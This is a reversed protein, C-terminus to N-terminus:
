CFISLNPIFLKTSLIVKTIFSATSHSVYLQLFIKNEYLHFLVEIIQGYFM